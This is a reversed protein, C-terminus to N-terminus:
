SFTLDGQTRPQTWAGGGASLDFIFTILIWGIIYWQMPLRWSILKELPVYAWFHVTKSKWPTLAMIRFGPTWFQLIELKGFYSMNYVMLFCIEHQVFNGISSLDLFKGNKLKLPNFKLFHTETAALQVRLNLGRFNSYPVNESMPFKSWCSIIKRITYLM